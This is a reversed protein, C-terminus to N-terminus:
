GRAPFSSDPALRLFGFRGTRRSEQARAAEIMQQATQLCRRADDIQGLRQHAMALVLWNQAKPLQKQHQNWNMGNSKELNEIATEYHGARYQALGLVHPFWADPIAQAGLTALEVLRSPDVAECQAASCARTMQLTEAVDNANGASLWNTAFDNTATQTM